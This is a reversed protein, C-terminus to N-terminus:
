REEVQRESKYGIKIDDYFAEADSNTSDADTMFAIAGIKYRPKRGFAKLYDEYIDREEYVWGGNEKLGSEVVILQLNKSYPSPSITGEKVKETWIYEIAKTNTFLISPFIVYVRAAFDDHKANKLNEKGNKLPFKTANWKWSIIPRKDMDLKIKYFLASATGTSTALVFREHNSADIKYLVKGRLIKEKWERLASEESFPFYKVVDVKVGKIVYKIFLATAASILLLAIITYILPRLRIQM